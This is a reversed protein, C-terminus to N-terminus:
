VELKGLQARSRHNARGQGSWRCKLPVHCDCIRSLSQKGIPCCAARIKMEHALGNSPSKSWSATIPDHLMPALWIAVSPRSSVDRVMCCSAAAKEEKRSEPTMRAHASSCALVRERLSFSRAPTQSTSNRPDGRLSIAAGACRPVGAYCQTWADGKDPVRSSSVAELLM